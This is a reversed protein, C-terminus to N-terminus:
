RSLIAENIKSNLEYVKKIDPKDPLTCKNYMEELEDMENNVMDFFEKKYKGNVDRWCGHKIALLEQIDDGCYTQIKHEKLIHKCTIQLRRLHSAQKDEGAADKKNNRHGTHSSFNNIINSIEGVVGKLDNSSIKDMNVDIRLEANTLDEETLSRKLSDEDIYISNFFSNTARTIIRNDRTDVVYFSLMERKFTPFAEELHNYTREIISITQLLKDLNTANGLLSNQLRIFQQRAYGSFTFFAKKTLFLDKNDLLLKGVDSIYAYHEPLCGLMEITNPNCDYILKIYKNTNYICTDTNSDMYEEFVGNVVKINKDTLDDPYTLFNPGLLDRKLPSTIGRIDIDSNPGNLGYAISGGFVLFDINKGLRESNRIFDYEPRKLVKNIDM